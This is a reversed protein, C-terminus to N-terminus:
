MSMLVATIAGTVSLALLLATRTIAGKSFLLAAMAAILLPAIVLGIKWENM